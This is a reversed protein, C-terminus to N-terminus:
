NTKPVIWIGSREVSTRRAPGKMTISGTSTAIVEANNETIPTMATAANSVSKCAGVPFEGAYGAFGDPRSYSVINSGSTWSMEVDVPHYFGTPFFFFNGSLTTPDGIPQGTATNYDNLLEATITNRAPDGVFDLSAIVYLRQSMEHYVLCGANLGRNSATGISFPSVEPLVITILKGNQTVSSISSSNRVSTYHGLSVPIPSSQLVASGRAQRACFPIVANANSTVSDGFGGGSQGLTTLNIFGQNSYGSWGGQHQGLFMVNCTSNFAIAKARTTPQTWHTANGSIPSDIRCRSPLGDIILPSQMNQLWSGAIQLNANKLVIIAKPIICGDNSFSIESDQITFSGSLTTTSSCVGIRQIVEAQCNRMSIASGLHLTPINFIQYCSGIFTSEFLCEAEGTQLGILTTTAATHCVNIISNRVSILRNQTGGWSVAYCNWELRCGSIDVFDGNGDSPAGQIAIAVGFGSITVNNIRPASSFACNYQTSKNMGPLGVPFAYDAYAIEPKIGIRPDVHIGASVRYRSLVNAPAIPPIWNSETETQLNEHGLNNSYIHGVWPGVLALNKVTTFRGGQIEIGNEWSNTFLMVGTNIGNPQTGIPGTLVVQRFTDGYGLRLTNILHQGPALSVLGSKTFYMENDIFCQIALTDDTGTSYTNSFTKAADGVAGWHFQSSRSAKTTWVRGGLSLDFIHDFLQADYGGRLVITVGSGPKLRAGSEFKVLNEIILDSGVFHNGLPVSVVGANDAAVLTSRYDKSNTM